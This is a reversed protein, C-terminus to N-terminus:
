SRAVVGTIKMLRTATTTDLDKYFAQLFERPLSSLSGKTPRAM